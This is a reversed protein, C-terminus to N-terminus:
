CRLQPQRVAAELALATELNRPYALGHTILTSELAVVPRGAALADRVEDSIILGKMMHMKNCQTSQM